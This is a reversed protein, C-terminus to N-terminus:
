ETLGLGKMMKDAKEADAESLRANQKLEFLSSALKGGFVLRVWRVVEFLPTLWKHRKLIPFIERLTRYPLFIRHMAYRFKGGKRKQQAMVKTETTGYVGGAIVYDSFDDYFGDSEEGCFWIRSLRSARRAFELIGAESLLDERAGDDAGEKSDLMYLDAFFRIGCGGSLFHKLMHAIHYLYFFDDRMLYEFGNDAPASHEWVESLIKEIKPFYFEEILDFHLELHVGGPSYFAVDHFCKSTLKYELRETLLATARDIDERHILIDIDCSTRMWPEPYFGRIVAGKLPIYRIGEKRFLERVSALEYEMGRYRYVAAMQARRIVSSAEGEGLLGLSDLAASVLHALDHHRALAFLEGINASTAAEMAEDRAVDSFLQYRVLTFLAGKVDNM